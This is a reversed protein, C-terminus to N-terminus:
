IARMTGEAEVDEIAPDRRLADLVSLDPLKLTLIGHRDFRSANYEDAGALKLLRALVDQRGAPTALADTRVVIHYVNKKAETM